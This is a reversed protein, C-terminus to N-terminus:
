IKTATRANGNAAIEQRQTPTKVVAPTSRATCIIVKYSGAATRSRANFEGDADRSVRNDRAYMALSRMERLKAEIEKLDAMRQAVWKLQQKLYNINPNITVM